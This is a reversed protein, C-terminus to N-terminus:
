VQIGNQFIILDLACSCHVVICIRRARANHATQGATGSGPGELRFGLRPGLRVRRYRSNPPARGAAYASVTEAVDKSFMCALVRDPRNRMLVAGHAGSAYALRHLAEEWGLGLLAATTIGEAADRVCEVRLM